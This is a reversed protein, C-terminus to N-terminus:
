ESGTRRKKRDEKKTIGGKRGKGEKMGEGEKRSGM